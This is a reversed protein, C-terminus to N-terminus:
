IVDDISSELEDPIFLYQNGNPMQILIMEGAGEDIIAWNERAYDIIEKAEGEKIIKKIEKATIEIANEFGDERFEDLPIALRM